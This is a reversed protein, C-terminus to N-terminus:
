FSRDTKLRRWALLELCGSLLFAILGIPEPVNSVGTTAATGSGIPLSRGFNARWLNYDAITATGRRWVVYDAADVFGDGNLDGDLLPAADLTVNDFFTQASSAFSGPLQGFVGRATFSIQLDGPPVTSGTEVTLTLLSEGGSIRAEATGFGGPTIEAFTLVGGLDVKESPSSVASLALIIGAPDGLVVNDDSPAFPGRGMIDMDSVEVTAIYRTNPQVVVGALTQFFRGQATPDSENHSSNIVAVPGSENLFCEDCRIRTTNASANPKQGTASWGAPIDGYGAPAFTDFNLLQFNQNPGSGAGPSGLNPLIDDPVLVQTNSVYVDFGPDVIPIAVALSQRTLAAVVLTCLLRLRNRMM